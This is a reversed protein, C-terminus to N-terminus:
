YFLSEHLKSRFTRLRLGVLIRKELPIEDSHLWSEVNNWEQKTNLSALHSQRSKCIEEAEDWSVQRSPRIYCYCGGGPMMIDPGCVEATPCRGPTRDEGGECTHPSCVFHQLLVSPAPVACDWKGNDLRVPRQSTPHFSFLLRFGTSQKNGDSRFRVSLNETDYFTLDLGGSSSCLTEIPNKPNASCSTTLYIELDDCDCCQDLHFSVFSIMISHNAPVSLTLCSDMDPPYHSHGDWHPTEILGTLM